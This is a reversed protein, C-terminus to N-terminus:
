RSNQLLAIIERAVEEVSKGTVDVRQWGYRTCLEHARQLERRVRETSAYPELPIGEKVARVRRLEILREPSMWLWFVRRPPLALLAKPPEMGEVLPVNAAFWGRYALYLMTPTKMTRSVGTLVVEARELEHANQGDDHHFAFDVAEIERSRAETLQRLLGPKEQPSLQLHKALRELVPGLMDLSDVGAKRSEDLILRRLEDSVLTHVLISDERAAEAVVSRIQELTRVEKRRVITVAADRFQVLGARVVREATEGTADSVVFVKLMISEDSCAVIGLRPAPSGAQADVPVLSNGWDFGEEISVVMGRDRPLTSAARQKVDGEYLSLIGVGNNSRCSPVDYAVSITTTQRHPLQPEAKERRPRLSELWGM